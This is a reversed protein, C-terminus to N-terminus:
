SHAIADSPRPSRIRASSDGSSTRISSRRCAFWERGDRSLQEVALGCATRVVGARVPNRVVYRCAALLYLDDEIVQAGFRGQFVHGPRGHRHNWWQAYTGNLHKIARSLNADLTTAVLHYHNDMLCYALCHLRYPAVIAALLHLFTRRDRDDRYITMRGTGRATVHYTLGPLKSGCPVHWAACTNM